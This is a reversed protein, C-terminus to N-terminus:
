LHCVNEKILLNEKFSCIAIQGTDQTPLLSVCAPTLFSPKKLKSMSKLAFDVKLLTITGNPAKELYQLNMVINTEFNPM